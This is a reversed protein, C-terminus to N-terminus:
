LELWGPNDMFWEVTRVLGYEFSATPCWRDNESFAGYTKDYGPRISEADVLDYLPERGMIYAVRKVLSVNDVYEQGALQHRYRHFGPDEALGTIFDAVNRVYTYWRGGPEGNTVHVKLREGTLLARVIRPIFALQSQREGFMNCSQVIQIRTRYTTWYAHCIDEQAAKSAAYPSSPTHNRGGEGHVEDTSMQIFPVDLYRALDLAHITSLINNTLFWAPERISLDVQCLSAVHIILDVGRLYDRWPGVMPIPVQLDHAVVDVRSRRDGIVGATREIVGNHRFSDTCLVERDTSDLLAALVHSGVFGGAGTLLTTATM